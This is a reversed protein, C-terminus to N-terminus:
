PLQGAWVAGTGLPSGFPIASEVVSYGIKVGNTGSNAVAITVIDGPAVTWFKAGRPGRGYRPGFGSIRIKTNSWSTYDLTVADSNSCGVYGAQWQTLDFPQDIFSLFPLNSEGPVGPPATGFGFGTITIKLEKSRGAFTVSEIKPSSLGIRNPIVTSLVGVTKNQPNTVKIVVSIVPNAQLGSLVIKTQSWSLINYNDTCGLRGGIEIFRTSCSMCPVGSPPLGFGSGFIRLTLAANIGQFAVNTIKADAAIAIKGLSLLATISLACLTLLPHNL